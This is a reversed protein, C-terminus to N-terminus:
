VSQILSIEACFSALSQIKNRFLQYRFCLAAQHDQNVGTVPLYINVAKSWIQFLIYVPGVLVLQASILSFILFILVLAPKEHLCYSFIIAATTVTPFWIACSKHSYSIAVTSVVWRSRRGSNTQRITEGVTTM